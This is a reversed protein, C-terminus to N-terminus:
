RVRLGRRRGIYGRKCGRCKGRTVKRPKRKKKTVALTVSRETKASIIAVNPFSFFLRFPVCSRLPNVPLPSDFLRDYGHVIISRVRSYVPDKPRPLEGPPQRPVTERTQIRRGLM